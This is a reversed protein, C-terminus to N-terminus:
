TTTPVLDKPFEQRLKSNPIENWLPALNNKLWYPIGATKAHSGIEWVWEKEPLVEPRTQAGVVIWKIGFSKFDPLPNIEELLPEISLWKHKADAYQLGDLAKFMMATNCVSAGVWANDPFEGWRKLNEPCKTLFLFRHEPHSEVRSLVGDRLTINESGIMNIVTNPDVWPGFLDGTFCVGIRSPLRPMSHCYIVLKFEPKFSRGYRHSLAKAWCPLSCVGNEQNKCGTQFNWVHTLYEIRSKNMEGGERQEIKLNNTDM